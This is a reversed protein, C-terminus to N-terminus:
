IVYFLLVLIFCSWPQNSWYSLSMILFVSNNRRGTRGDGSDAQRVWPWMKSSSTWTARSSRVFNFLNSSEKKYGKFILSAEGVPVSAGEDGQTESSLGPRKDLGANYPSLSIPMSHNLLTSSNCRGGSLEVLLSLFLIVKPYTVTHRSM